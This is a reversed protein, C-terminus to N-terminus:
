GNPDNLRKEIEVIKEAIAGEVYWISRLFEKSNPADWTVSDLKRNIFIITVTRDQGMNLSLEGGANVKYTFREETERTGEYLINM